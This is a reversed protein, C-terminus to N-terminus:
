RRAGTRPGFLATGLRIVTAGEEVAVPYDGSMGMSLEKLNEMSVGSDVLRDRLTRLERFAGQAMALDGMGPAVTMLGTLLIGPLGVAYQALGLAEEPMVGYKRPDRGINVEIMVEIERSGKSRYLVSFRSLAEAVRRSDVSHVADFLRAASSAKNTQLHGVLCIKSDKFVGAEIKRKAEQVRNEGFLTLGLGYAEQIAESTVNKTVAMLRVSAPDRNAKACAEAVREMVVQLNDAIM